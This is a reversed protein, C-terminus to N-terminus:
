NLRWPQEPIRESAGARMAPIDDPSSIEAANLQLPSWQDGSDARGGAYM